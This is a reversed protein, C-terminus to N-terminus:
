TQKNSCRQFPNPNSLSARIKFIWKIKFFQDATHNVLSRASLYQNFQFWKAFEGEFTLKWLHQFRHFCIYGVDALNTGITDKDEVNIENCEIYERSIGLVAVKKFLCMAVSQQAAINHINNHTNNPQLITFITPSCYQSYQQAAINHNNNPQM